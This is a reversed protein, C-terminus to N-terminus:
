IEYAMRLGGWHKDAVRIPAAAEKMMVVVGGGMHRPNSQVLYPRTNRAACLGARSDFIMRNRAHAMNWAADGPRQPHSFDRNHVPLYGNRDVIVCFAMRPDFRRFGELMEPLVEEFLALYRTSFQQPETGAIPQYDTDFLEHQSIRGEKLLRDFCGAVEAAARMARDIIEVNEERLQEIKKTLRAVADPEPERFHLHLGLTSRAVVRAHFRGMGAIELSCNAGPAIENADHVGILAGGV